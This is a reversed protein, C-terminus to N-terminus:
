IHILSLDEVLIIEFKSTLQSVEHSIQEVLKDIIPAARYVPSVISIEVPSSMAM